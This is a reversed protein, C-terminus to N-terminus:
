GFNEAATRCRCVHVYTTTKLPDNNVRYIREKQLHPKGAELVGVDGGVVERSWARTCYTSETQRCREIVASMSSGHSMVRVSALRVLWCSTGRWPMESASMRCLNIWNFCMLWSSDRRKGTTSM